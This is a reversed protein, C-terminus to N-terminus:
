FRQPYTFGGGNQTRAFTTKKIAAAVCDGLAPDPTLKVTTSTVAGDASVKVGIKVEGRASSRSGCAVIKAKVAAMGTRVAALDLIEPLGTRSPAPDRARRQNDPAPRFQVCCDGAYDSMMCTVQDCSPRTPDKAPVDREIAPREPVARASSPATPRSRSSPPAARGAPPAAAPEPSAVM